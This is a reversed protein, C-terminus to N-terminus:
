ISDVNLTSSDLLKEKVCSKNIKKNNEMKFLSLRSNIIPKLNSLLSIKSLTKPKSNSLSQQFKTKSKIANSETITNMENNNNSDSVLDKSLVFAAVSVPNIISSKKNSNKKLNNSQKHNSDSKNLFVGNRISLKRIMSDANIVYPGIKPPSTEWVLKKDNFNISSFFSHNKITTVTARKSPKLVLIKNILDRLVVPFGASFAYQLKIIKQFTLYENSAKFPPKGAIMQYLICGFAWIDCAKNCYKGELLEPSIYEATGVFSVARINDPYQDNDNKELLIATGFDTIQINLKDNILINEPKIDRHVIGNSHMYLIADIIQAGFYRTCNENLTNNIKIFSLLEGKSAYDLVFYLSDFDQFTFYLSIFGNGNKLRNLAQKEIEVYKVKKEKIIYRKDLIKIAFLKSSLIDVALFVTSYSGEGIVKILKFNNISKKLIKSNQEYNKTEKKSERKESLYDRSNTKNDSLTENSMTYNVKEVMKVSKDPELTKYKGELSDSLHFNLINSIDTNNNKLFFNNQNINQNISQNVNINVKQKLYIEERKNTLYNSPNADKCKKRRLTKDNPKDNLAFLYNDKTTQSNKSFSRDNM